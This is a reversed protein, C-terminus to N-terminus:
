WGRAALEGGERVEVPFEQVMKQGQFTGEVVLTTQGPQAFRAAVVLEGDPYVATKRGAVLVDSAAPGGAFRVKEVQLCQNRHAKAAAPVGAEGFCNFVGGGRRTLAEFLEANGAGIGTRYCHFRTPFPCRQEFRSVLTAVDTEGWNLQGDSLLFVNLPTGAAIDFSPRALRALAASLDTAGELVIGDLRTLAQERGQPTNPLWAKPEVWSTGVNFALINFHKIDSDSELVKRLLKMSVAFRDPHESLSTDLLFVAHEAFPKEAV